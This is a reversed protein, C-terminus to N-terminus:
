CAGVKRGKIKNPAREVLERRAETKLAQWSALLAEVIGDLSKNFLKADRRLGNAIKTKVRVNLQSAKAM